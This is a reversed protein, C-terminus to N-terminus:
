ESHPIPEHCESLPLSCCICPAVHALSGHAPDPCSWFFWFCGKSSWTSVLVRGRLLGLASSVVDGISVESFGGFADNWRPGIKQPTTSALGGGFLAGRVARPSPPGGTATPGRARRREPRDRSKM